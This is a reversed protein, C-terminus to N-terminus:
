VPLTALTQIFPSRPSMGSISGVVMKRDGVVAVRGNGGFAEAAASTFDLPLKVLKAVMGALSFGAVFSVHQPASLFIVRKVDPMPPSFMMAKALDKSKASMKLSDLPPLGVGDWLRDGPDIVLM